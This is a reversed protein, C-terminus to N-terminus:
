GVPITKAETQTHTKTHTQSHTDVRLLLEEGTWALVVYNPGSICFVKTLIGTITPTWKGQDGLYFCVQFDVNIGNQAQTHSLNGGHFSSGGFESLIHVVSQDLHWYSQLNVSRLTLNLKFNLIETPKNWPSCVIYCRSQNASIKIPCLFHTSIM